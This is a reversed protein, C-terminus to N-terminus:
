WDHITKVLAVVCAGFTSVDSLIQFLPLYPTSLQALHQFHPLVFLFVDFM